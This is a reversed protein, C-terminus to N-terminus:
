NSTNSEAENVIILSYQKQIRKKAQNRLAESGKIELIPGFSLLKILVETEDQKDYWLQATCYGTKEDIETRKEFCAFEMMFREVGNRQPSIELIAPESCRKKKFFEKAGLRQKSFNGTEEISIIRSLNISWIKRGGKHTIHRAYVRFKNNKVSYEIFVPVFTQTTEDSKSPKYTIKLIKKNLVAARIIRFNKIISQNSFDDGDTFQDFYYFDENNYLPKVYKLQKSLRKIENDEVFLRVRDDNLLTKIWRKELITLPRQTTNQNKLVSSFGLATKSVLNWQNSIKPIIYFASESFANENIIQTMEKQTINTKALIKSVANYYASYIESFLEVREGGNM